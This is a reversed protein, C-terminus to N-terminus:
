KMGAELKEYRARVALLNGDAAKREFEVKRLSEEALEKAKM